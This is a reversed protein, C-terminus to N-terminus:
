SLEKLLCTVLARYKGQVDYSGDGWGREIDPVEADPHTWWGSIDTVIWAIGDEDVTNFIFEGLIINGELKLREVPGNRNDLFSLGRNVYHEQRADM